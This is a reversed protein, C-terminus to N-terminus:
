VWEEKIKRQVSTFTYGYIRQFTWHKIECVCSVCLVCVACVFMYIYIYLYIYIYFYIYIHIYIILKHKANNLETQWTRQVSKRLSVKGPLTPAPDLRDWVPFFCRPWIGFWTHCLQMGIAYGCKGLFRGFDSLEDLHIFFSTCSSHTKSWYKVHTSARLLYLYRYVCVCVCM